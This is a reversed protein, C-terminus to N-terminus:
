VINVGAMRHSSLIAEAAPAAGNRGHSRHQTRIAQWQGVQQSSTPHPSPLFVLLHVTQPMAPFFFFSIQQPPQSGKFFLSSEQNAMSPKNGANKKHSEIAELTMNEWWSASFDHTRRNKSTFILFWLTIEPLTIRGGIRKLICAWPRFYSSGSFIMGHRAVWPNHCGCSWHQYSFAEIELVRKTKFVRDKNETCWHWDVTKETVIDKVGYEGGPRRGVSFMKWASCTVAFCTGAGDRPITNGVPPFKLTPIWGCGHLDICMCACWRMPLLRQSCHSCRGPRQPPAWCLRNILSVHHVFRNQVHSFRICFNLDCIM